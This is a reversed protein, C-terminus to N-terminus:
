RSTTGEAGTTQSKNRDVMLFKFDRHKYSPWQGYGEALEKVCRHLTSRGPAYGMIRRVEKEGLRYSLHIVQGVAAELAERQYQKYPLISLKEVLPPFVKKTQRDYLQALRYRIPGFSTILKRARPLRDNRYYREPQASKYEEVTKEELANLITKVISRMLMNQDEKLGHLIGNLTLDNKPIKYSLAIKIELEDM